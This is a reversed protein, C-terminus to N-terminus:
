NGLGGVRWTPGSATRLGMLGWPMSDRDRLEQLWVKLSRGTYSGM